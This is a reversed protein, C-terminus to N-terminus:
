VDIEEFVNLNIVIEDKKKKFHLSIQNDKNKNV